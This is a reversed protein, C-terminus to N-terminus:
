TCEAQTCEYRFSDFSDYLLLLSDSFFLFLVFFFSLTILVSLRLGGFVLVCKM